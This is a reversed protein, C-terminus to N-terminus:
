AEQVVTPGTRETTKPTVQGRTIFVLVAVVLANLSGVTEPAVQYHFAALLAVAAAVLGTFASPTVPRTKWATAAAFAASILAVIGGAMESSLGIGFTVALSLAASIIGLTVAPERGFPKM